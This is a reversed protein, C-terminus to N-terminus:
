ERRLEQSSKEESRVKARPKGVSTRRVEAQSRQDSGPGAETKDFHVTPMTRDQTISAVLM